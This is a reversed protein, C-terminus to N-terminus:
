SNTYLLLGVVVAALVVVVLDEQVALVLVPVVVVVIALVVVVFVHQTVEIGISIVQSICVHLQLIRLTDIYNQHLAM